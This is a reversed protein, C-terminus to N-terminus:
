CVKGNCTAFPMASVSASRPRTTGPIRILRRQTAALRCEDPDPHIQTVHPMRTPTKTPWSRDGGVATYVALSRGQRHSRAHSCGPLSELYGSTDRYHGPVVVSPDAKSVMRTGGFLCFGSFRPHSSDGESAESGQGSLAIQLNALGDADSQNM